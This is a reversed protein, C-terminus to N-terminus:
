AAPDTPRRTSSLRFLASIGAAAGLATAILLTAILVRDIRNAASHYVNSRAAYRLEVAKLREVEAGQPGFDLPSSPPPWVGNARTVYDSARFRLRDSHAAFALWMGVLAVAVMLRRVTFRPRPPGLPRGEFRIVLAAPIFPIPIRM